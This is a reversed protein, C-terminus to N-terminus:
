QYSGHCKYAEKVHLKGATTLGSDLAVFDWVVPKNKIFRAALLFIFLLCQSLSSVSLPPSLLHTLSLSLALPHPPFCPAYSNTQSYAIFM